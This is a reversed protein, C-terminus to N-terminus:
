ACIQYFVEKDSISLFQDVKQQVEDLFQLVHEELANIYAQDRYVRQICIKLNSNMRPDYSIFDIWDLELVCMGGQVQPMHEEPMGKEITRLHVSSNYPSKIEIGGRNGVLGDSSAGIWSLTPHKKFDVEQVISGTHLEYEKRAFAEADTGWAMSFSSASQEPEGTLRECVLTMLYDDRAKLPKGDRKSVALIDCFRSATAHGARKRRWDISGQDSERSIM